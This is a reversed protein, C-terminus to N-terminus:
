SEKVPEEPKVEKSAERAARARDQAEKLQPPQPRRVVAPAIDEAQEGFGGVVAPQRDDEPEPKPGTGNWFPGSGQQTEEAASPTGVIDEIARGFRTGCYRCVKAQPKIYEACEPCEVRGEAQEKSVAKMPTGLEEQPPIRQLQRFWYADAQDLSKKGEHGARASAVENLATDCHTRTTDICGYTAQLMEAGARFAIEMLKPSLDSARIREPAGELSDRLEILDRPFVGPETEALLLPEIEEPVDCRVTDSPQLGVGILSEVIIMNIGYIPNGYAEFLETAQDRAPKVAPMLGDYDEDQPPGNLLLSEAKEPHVIEAVQYDQDKLPVLRARPIERVCFGTRDAAVPLIGKFPYGGPLFLYHSQHMKRREAERQQARANKNAKIQEIKPLAM